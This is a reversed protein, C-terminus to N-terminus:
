YGFAVDDVFSTSGPIAIPNPALFEPSSSFVLLVKTPVINDVLIEVPVSFETYNNTDPLVMDAKAIVTNNNDLFLAYVRFGGEFTTDQQLPGATTCTGAALIIPNGSSHRYFGSVIKPVENFSFDVPVADQFFDEPAFLGALGIVPAFFGNDSVLKLSSNGNYAEMGTAQTVYTPPQEFFDDTTSFGLPRDDVTINRNFTNEGGDITCTAGNFTGSANRFVAVQQTGFDEFDGNPLSDLVITDDSDDLYDPIGDNDEDDNSLDGDGNGDEDKTDIGDGDDDADLYDATGDQDSDDNTVDGDGDIDEAATPITDGDDDNDLYNLTGDIDTDTTSGEDVTLVGDGDDDNDLYNLTGDTDTDTTSGEDVTPVGDNDDDIDEYNPTGDGDTDDNEFDGDQDLDEEQNTIGDSDEDGLPNIATNDTDDLYDPVGDGDADDNTFNGDSNTDEDATAIGDGDDDSDRYNPTGDGDTDDNDYNGDQNLDESSNNLGDTDEDGQPDINVEMPDDDNDNSDSSCQVMLGLLIIAMLVFYLTTKRM